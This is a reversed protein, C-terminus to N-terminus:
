RGSGTGLREKIARIEADQVEAKREVAALLATADRVANKLERLSEDISDLKVLMRATVISADRAEKRAEIMSNRADLLTFSALAVLCTIVIGTALQVVPFPYSKM